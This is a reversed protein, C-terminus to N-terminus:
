VMPILVQMLKWMPNGIMINRLINYTVLVVVAMTIAKITTKLLSNISHNIDIIELDNNIDIIFLITILTASISTALALGKAGM